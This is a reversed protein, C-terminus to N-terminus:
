KDTGVWVTFTCQNRDCDKLSLRVYVGYPRNTFRVNNADKERVTWQPGLFQGVAQKMNNYDQAAATENPYGSYDCVYDSGLDREHYNWIRCEKAGPLTMTPTWLHNGEEDEQRAGKLADFRHASAEIVQKLAVFFNGQVGSSSTSGVSSLRGLNERITATMPDQDGLTKRASTLASQYMQQASTANGMQELVWAMENETRIIQVNDDPLNAKEITLSRQLVDHADPFKKEVSYTSALGELLGAVKIDDAGFNKQGVTLATRGYSEAKALNQQMLVQNGQAATARAYFLQALNGLPYLMNANEAGVSSQITGKAAVLQAEADDLNGMLMLVYGVGNQSLGYNVHTTGFTSEAVVLAEKAVPLAEAVRGQAVLQTARQMLDNWRDFQAFTPIALAFTVVFLILTCVAVSKTKMPTCWYTRLM